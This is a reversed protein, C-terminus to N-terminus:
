ESVEVPVAIIGCQYVNNERECANQQHYVTMTNAVAMLLFSIVTIGVAFLAIFAIPELIKTM